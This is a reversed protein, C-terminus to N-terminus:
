APRRRPRRGRGRGRILLSLLLGASLASIAAGLTLKPPFYSLTIKAAEGPPVRVAMLCEDAPELAAPRENIRAKWGPLLLQSIIVRPWIPVKADGATPWTDVDITLAAPGPRAYRIAGPQAADEFFAVGAASPQQYLRWGAPTTEVLDCDAPEPLNADTVLIWGVDYPRMWRTDALLAAPAPTEGWPEFGFRARMCRPNLPGYDTLSAIGRLINTNAVAKDVPQIYEGPRGGQRGTLVWLRHRSEAVTDMWEAPARPTILQRADRVGPPVDITWGIVALDLATVLTLWACAANGRGRRVVYALTGLSVLAIVMPVWVANNWPRLAHLAAARGASTALPLTAAVIVLPAGILVVAGLIPHASWRATMTRLGSRKKGLAAGLDHVTVAALAAVALNVLLLARAPCRFLSSGPLWYLLPCIPGQKGLAWLLGLAGVVVWPRRRADQWWGRRLALLALGLPLLGAYAFQEVQHSPGWYPQDFFNPTRQGLFMPLVWDIASAPSWSNEVFDKYTRQVRTCLQLYDYTPLWQIAFLGAAGCGALLWGFLPRVDYARRARRKRRPRSGLLWLLAGAMTLGVIQVHGAFCQLALILAALAFGHLVNGRATRLRALSWFVWPTWAAAHQMTFHARHALMFGCFAFTIGGFLAAHRALPMRRLLLYMGWLALSYHVWLSAAYAELPPLLAFLWTTPYWFAAQPDAVFPRGLGTWPNLWPWHGAQITDHFFTRAPFYYLIDDEGAGLGACRWVPALMLGPLLVVCLAVVLRMMRM